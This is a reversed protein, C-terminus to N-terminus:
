SDETMTRYYGRIKRGRKPCFFGEELNGDTFDKWGDFFDDEISIDIRSELDDLYKEIALLKGGIILKSYTDCVPM